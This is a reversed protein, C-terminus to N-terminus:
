KKLLSDIHAKIATLDGQVLGQRMTEDILVGNIFFTPTESVNNARGLAYDFAIKDAVNPVTQGEVKARGKLDENFQNIDLGLDKAYKEFVAGRDKASASSWEKQNDFLKDHMEWFKGQIGAAEAAAAAAKANPHISTLPFNRYVFSIRDSYEQVLQRVYPEATGCGPCQFDGYEVLTVKADTPGKVHDGINGNANSKAVISNNSVGSLDIPPNAMRQWVILGGILLVAATSFIIWGTKNM